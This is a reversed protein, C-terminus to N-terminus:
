RNPITPNSPNRRKTPPSHRGWTWDSTAYDNEAQVKWTYTTAPELGTITHTTAGAIKVPDFNGIVLNYTEAGASAAWSLEASTATLMEVTLGDPAYLTRDPEEEQKDCSIALGLVLAALFLKKM